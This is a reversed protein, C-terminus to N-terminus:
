AGVARVRNKWWTVTQTLGGVLDYRPKWGVEERLRRVGAVIRMPEGERYSLEGIRLLDPRGLLEGIGTVIERVTVTRGSAVNVVGAAGREAITVLADAVDEVHLYDRVQEGRTTPAPRNELLALAVSPVLRRPDEGPGYVYFIRPWTLQLGARGAFRSAALFLAQKCAGYLDRPVAPSDETLEGEGAEYEFCTGAIMVRRCGIESVMRLLELSASLATLNDQAPAGLQGGWALHVVLDPRASALPGRLASPTSLDGPIVTISGFLDEIRWPDGAPRVVATVGHGSALLRRAVHSGIFGTAGTLLVRM